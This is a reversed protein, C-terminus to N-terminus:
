SRIFDTYKQTDQLAKRAIHTHRFFAGSSIKELAQRQTLFYDLLKNAMDSFERYLKNM